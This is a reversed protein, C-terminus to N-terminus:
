PKEVGAVISMQPWILRKAPPHRICQLINLLVGTEVWSILHLTGQGRATSLCLHRWVNGFIGQPSLIVWSSFWQNLCFIWLTVKLICGPWLNPVVRQINVKRQIETLREKSIRQQLNWCTALTIGCNVVVHVKGVYFYVELALPM